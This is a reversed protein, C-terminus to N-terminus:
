FLFLKLSHNQWSSYSDPKVTTNKVLHGWGTSWVTIISPFLCVPFTWNRRGRRQSLDQNRGASCVLARSWAPCSRCQPLCLQLQDFCGRVFPVVAWYWSVMILLISRLLSFNPNKEELRCFQPAARLFHVVCRKPQFLLLYPTILHSLDTKKPTVHSELTLIKLKVLHTSPWLFKKTSSMLTKTASVILTITQKCHEFGVAPHRDERTTGSRLQWGVPLRLDSRRGGAGIVAMSINLM